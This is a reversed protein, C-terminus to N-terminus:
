EEEDREGEAQSPTTRPVDPHRETGPLRRGTGTVDQEDEDREGEAQSPTQEWM